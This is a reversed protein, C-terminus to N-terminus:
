KKKSKKNKRIKKDEIKVAFYYIAAGIAGLLAIVIIWVVKENESKFKRKACDILMLIWFIFAFIVLAVIFLILLIMGAMFGGIAVSNM